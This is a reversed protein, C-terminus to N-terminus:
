RGLIAFRAPSCSAGALLVTMGGFPRHDDRLDQLTRDVAEFCHRHMMPAEDWILLKARRLLEALDSQKSINCRTDMLVNIPIKLRSHATRGGKLLISCIGSSGVAIAIIGDARLSALVANEVFTKGTGGPGDLFCLKGLDDRASQCVADYARRQDANSHMKAEVDDRLMAMEDRDWRTEEHITRSAGYYRDFAREPRPLGFFLLDKDDGGIRRLDDELLQLGLDWRDQESADPHRFDRELRYVCDDTLAERHRLWLGRPNSPKNLLLITVFLRRLMSGSQIQGAEALVDDWEGDNELLGRAVCAAQYKDYLTGEFRRLDEFSKPAVVHHLLIRLYFREGQAPSAWHVRAITDSVPRKRTQWRKASADWRAVQIVTIYTHQLAPQERNYRFFDTLSTRPPDRGQL